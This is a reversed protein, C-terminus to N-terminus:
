GVLWAAGNCYVPVTFAGTGSLTAGFTNVNSNYCFSRAGLLSASPAYPSGVTTLQAYSLPVSLLLPTIAVGTYATIPGLTLTTSLSTNYSGPYLNLGNYALTGGLGGDNVVKGTGVPIQFISNFVLATSGAARLYIGNSNAQTNSVVCNTVSLTGTGYAELVVDGSADLESDRFFLSAGTQAAGVQEAGSTEVLSFDGYGKVINFCYVAGTGEHTVKISHGQTYSGSGTNDQYLGAGSGSAYLWVDQLFLKQPATGTMNICKNGSGGIIELGQISFRNGVLTGGTAQVTVTGNLVIPTHLSGNEGVLYVHPVTLTIDETATGQLVVFQPTVDTPAVANAANIAAQLTKYPRAQSGNATYTDTRDPDCFWYNSVPTDGFTAVSGSPYTISTAAAAGLTPTVLTPSTAFVLSGSGTDETVASKLNAASPTGLFTAIGTGLSTLGTGGQAASLPTTLGTLSTIDSNAGSAAASLNSRATAATTANTGGQAVTAPTATLAASTIQAPTAKSTVAGGGTVLPLVDDAAVVSTAAPLATIKVDAM